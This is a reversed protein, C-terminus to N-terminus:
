LSGTHDIHSLMKQSSFRFDRMISEDSPVFLWICEVLHTAATEHIVAIM